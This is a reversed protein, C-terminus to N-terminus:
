VRLGRWDEGARGWEGPAGVLFDRQQRPWFTSLSLKLLPSLALCAPPFPHQRQPKGTGEGSFVWGQYLASTLERRTYEQRKLRQM